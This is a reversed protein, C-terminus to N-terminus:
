WSIQELPIVITITTTANTKMSLRFFNIHEINCVSQKVHSPSIPFYLLFFPFLYICLVLITFM